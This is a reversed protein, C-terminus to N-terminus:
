ARVTRGFLGSSRPGLLSALIDDIVTAVPKQGAISGTGFYEVDIVGEVRERKAIQGPTVDPSLSGPSAKERVAAEICANIIETPIEDSEIANGERDVVGVRPWQLAQDRLNTRLGPLRSLTYGDLWTTARRLAQEALAEDDGTIAFTLGRASAYEAADALSAYSDSTSSGAGTEVNLAM